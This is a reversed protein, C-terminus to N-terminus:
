KNARLYEWRERELLTDARELLKGQAHPPLQYYTDVLHAVEWRSRDKSLVRQVYFDTGSDLLVDLRVKYFRALDVLMDTSPLQKGLEYLTYTSRNIHMAEAVKAQTYGYTSRLLRLNEGIKKQTKLDM